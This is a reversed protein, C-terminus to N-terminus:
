FYFSRQRGRRTSWKRVVFIELSSNYGEGGKSHGTFRIENVDKSMSKRVKKLMEDFFDAVERAFGPHADVGSRNLLFEGDRGLIRIDAHVDSFFEGWSNSLRTGPFSVIITKGVRKVFGAFKRPTSTKGGRYFLEEIGFEKPNEKLQNPDVYALSCYAKLLVVDEVPVMPGEEIEPFQELVVQNSQSDVFDDETESNQVLTVQGSSFSTSDGVVESVEHRNGIVQDQQIDIVFDGNGQACVMSLSCCVLLVFLSKKM